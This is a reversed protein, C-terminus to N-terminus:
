RSTTIDSGWCVESLSDPATAGLPSREERGPARRATRQEFAHMSRTLVATLRDATEFEEFLFSDAGSKVLHLFGTTAELPIPVVLSSVM